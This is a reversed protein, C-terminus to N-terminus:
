SISTLALLSMTVADMASIMPKQIGNWATQRRVPIRKRRRLVWCPLRAPATQATVLGCFATETLIRPMIFFRDLYPSEPLADMYIKM